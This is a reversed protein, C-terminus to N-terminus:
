FTKHRKIARRLAANPGAARDLAKLFVDRDRNSLRLIEAEEIEMRASRLSKALMYSSLSLGSLSAAEEILAKQKRNVRLEIRDGKAAAARSMAGPFFM